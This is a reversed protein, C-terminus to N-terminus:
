VVTVVEATAEEETEIDEETIEKMEIEAEIDTIDEVAMIKKHIMIMM